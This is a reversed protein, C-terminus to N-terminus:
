RDLGGPGELDAGIRDLLALGRQLAALEEGSLGALSERLWQRARNQVRSVTQEGNATLRLQLRRRESPDPTRELQGSRVLRDVLASGAPRSIGLHDAVSSLSAGPRRKVYLLARLQPVTLRPAAHSRMEQRVLRMTRPVVDLIADATAEVASPRRTRFTTTHSSNV